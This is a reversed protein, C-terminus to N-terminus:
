GYGLAPVVCLIWNKRWSRLQSGATRAFLRFVSRLYSIGTLSTGPMLWRIYRIPGPHGPCLGRKLRQVGRGLCEFKLNEAGGVTGVRASWHLEPAVVLMAVRKGRRVSKSCGMKRESREEHVNKSHSPNLNANRKPLLAIIASEQKQFTHVRSCRMALLLNFKLNTSRSTKTILKGLSMKPEFKTGKKQLSPDFGITPQPLKQHAARFKNVDGRITSNSFKDYSCGMCPSTNVM